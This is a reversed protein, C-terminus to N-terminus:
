VFSGEQYWNGKGRNCDRCLTRLNNTETKGGKSIPVIHDVELTVGDKASRGCITCRHMDRCLIQYRMKPTMKLREESSLSFARTIEDSYLMMKEIENDSFSVSNQYTSRGTPSSYFVQIVVEFGICPHLLTKKILKAEYKDYVTKKLGSDLIDKSNDIKLVSKVREQYHAKNFLNSDCQELITEFFRREETVKQVCYKEFDFNEAKKRTQTSESFVYQSEIPYFDFQKNVEKLARYRSSTRKVCLMRKRKFGNVAWVILRKELIFICVLMVFFLLVTLGYPANMFFIDIKKM